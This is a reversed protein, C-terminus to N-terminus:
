PGPRTYWLTDTSCRSSVAEPFPTEGEELSVGGGPLSVQRSEGALTATVLEAAEEVQASHWIVVADGVYLCGDRIEATGNHLADDGGSNSHQFVWVGDIEVADIQNSGSGCAAALTGILVVTLLRRIM